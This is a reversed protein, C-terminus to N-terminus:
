PIRHPRGELLTGRLEIERIAEPAVAHPDAPYYSCTNGTSPSHLVCHSWSVENTTWRTRLGDRWAYGARATGWSDVARQTNLWFEPYSITGFCRAPHTPRIKRQGAKLISM